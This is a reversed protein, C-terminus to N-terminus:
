DFCLLKTSLHDFYMGAVGDTSYCPENVAALAGNLALLTVFVSRLTM